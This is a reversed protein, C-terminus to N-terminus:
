KNISYNCQARYKGINLFIEKFVTGIGTTETKYDNLMLDPALRMM